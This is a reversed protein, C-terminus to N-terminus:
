RANRRSTLGDGRRHRSLRSRLTAPNCGLRAAIEDQTYGAILDRAVRRVFLNSIKAFNDVREAFVKSTARHAVIDLVEEDSLPGEGEKVIEPPQMEHTLRYQHARIHDVRRWELQRWIWGALSCPLADLNLLCEWTSIAFDQAHDDDQFTWKALRHVADLLVGPGEDPNELYAACIADLTKGTAAM